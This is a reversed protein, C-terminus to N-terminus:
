HSKRRDPGRGKAWMDAVNDAATGNFLHSPRVCRRNDCAHCAFIPWDGHILRWVLRTVAYPRTRGDETISLVGYGGPNVCGTWEWCGEGGYDVQRWIRSWLPETPRSLNSCLISCYVNARSALQSPTRYVARGCRPCVCNPALLKTLGCSRSCRRGRGRRADAQTMEFAKGCVECVCPIRPQPKRGPRGRPRPAPPPPPEHSAAHGEPTVYKWTRHQLIKWIAPKDVGFERALDVQTVGGAAYRARIARVQDETLKTKHNQAGRALRDPRTRSPNRDGATSRGKRVMDAVNDQVTGLFLHDPNCCARYTTDGPPFEADCAHCVFLGPPIPGRLLTWVLRHVCWARRGVTIRGYGGSFRDGTWWWHTDTKDILPWLREILRAPISEDQM